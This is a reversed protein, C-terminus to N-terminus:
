QPKRNMLFRFTYDCVVEDRQNKFLTKFGVIGRDPKTKSPDAQIVEFEAYMADGPYVPATLKYQGGLHAIVRGEIPLSHYAFGGGVCLTGMGHFIRGKFGQSRAYDEDFHLPYFDGGLCGFNVIDAETIVRVQSVFKQGVKFEDMYWGLKQDKHM